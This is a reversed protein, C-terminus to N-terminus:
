LTVPIILFNLGMIAMKYNSLSKIFLALLHVGEALVRPPTTELSYRVSNLNYEEQLSM